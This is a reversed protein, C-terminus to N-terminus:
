SSDRRGSAFGLAAFCLKTQEFRAGALLDGAKACASLKICFTNIYIRHRGTNGGALRDLLVALARFSEALRIAETSSDGRHFAPLLFIAPKVSAGSELATDVVFERAIEEACRLVWFLLCRAPYSLDCLREALGAFAFLLAVIRKLAQREDERAGSWDM